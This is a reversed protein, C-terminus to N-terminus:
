STPARARAWNSPRWRGSRSPEVLENGFPQSGADPLLAEANGGAAQAGAVLRRPIQRGPQPANFEKVWGPLENFYYTSSVFNGTKADFWFAGDAM